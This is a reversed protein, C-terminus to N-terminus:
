AVNRSHFTITKTVFSKSPSSQGAFYFIIQPKEKCLLLKIKKKNLINLKLIKLNKNEFGIKKKALKIDRTTILVQFKKNLLKHSLSIGLQGSGGIIIAKKKKM